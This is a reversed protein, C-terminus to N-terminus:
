ARHSSWRGCEPSTGTTSTWNNRLLDVSSVNRPRSPGIWRQGYGKMSFPDCAPYSGVVSSDAECRSAGSAGHGLLVCGVVRHSSTESAIPHKMSAPWQSVERKTARGDFISCVDGEGRYESSFPDPSSSGNANCATQQDCQRHSGASAVTEDAM